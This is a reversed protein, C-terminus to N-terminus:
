HMSESMLVLRFEILTNTLAKRKALTMGFATTCLRNSRMRVNMGGSILPALMESQPLLPQLGLAM